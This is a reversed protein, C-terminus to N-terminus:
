CCNFNEFYKEELNSLHRGKNHIASALPISQYQYYPFQTQIPMTYM